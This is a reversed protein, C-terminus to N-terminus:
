WLTARLRDTLTELQATARDHEDSSVFETWTEISEFEFVLKTEPSLGQDNHYVRFEAVADHTIWHIVEVDLWTDYAERHQGPVDFEVEYVLPHHLRM